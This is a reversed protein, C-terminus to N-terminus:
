VIKVMEIPPVICFYKSHKKVTTKTEDIEKECIFNFKGDSISDSSFNESIFNSKFLVSDGAFAVLKMGPV